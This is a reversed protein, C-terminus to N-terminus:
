IAGIFKRIILDEHEKIKSPTGEKLIKGHCLVAIRDATRYAVQLDHTVIISTKKLSTKLENLLHIITDVMVPDIGTTPEDYLMIEPDLALARALAVRKKMGGSLQSPMFSEKGELGVLRLKDQIIANIDDKKLRLNQSLALGINDRVSMSDFLASTQFVMGIKRRLSRINKKHSTIENGDIFIKGNDPSILGIIMKLLLTKGSGSSGLVVLTEGKEVKLNLGELVKNSGFSKSLNQINIISM